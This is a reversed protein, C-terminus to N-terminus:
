LGLRKRALMAYEESLDIGISQRKLDRAVLLSTGSGSFPDLVTDGERSGALICKSVLAPPYVAFHAERYGKTHISWVSRANRTPIFNREGVMATPNDTSKLKKNKAGGLSYSYRAKSARAVPERIAANDYYYKRSKSLLFVHEYDITPRDQVSSPMINPKHWIIDARLFWGDEQLAMAVRAPVLMLDKPKFGSRDKYEPKYERQSKFARKSGEIPAINRFGNAACYSDGLNLWVTGDPKLVRWVERFIEVLHQCYMNMDLELGLHGRWAHCQTCHGLVTRPVVSYGGRGLHRSRSWENMGGTTGRHEYEQWTHQCQCKVCFQGSGATQGQEVTSNKNITQQVQGPHHAPGLSGWVHECDNPGWVLPETGYSRLGFYPPSTCVMQVSEEPLTRLVERCDGVLIQPEYMERM